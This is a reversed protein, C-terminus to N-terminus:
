QYRYRKNWHRRRITAGGWNASTFTLTTPSVTAAGNDSSSITIVTTAAPQASLRVGFSTNSGENVTASNVDSVIALTDNDIIQAAVQLTAFGASAVSLTVSENTVNVDNTGSVTVTQAANWNDPTFTLSAPSVTAANTDPSSVNVTVAAAPQASLTVQFPASSGETINITNVNTHLLLTDNDTVHITLTLTPLGSSAITVTTEENEANNDETGTLTITQTTEWNDPTFILSPLNVTAVEINNSTANMTVTSAPQVNLRVAFSATSGEVLNLDATSSSVIVVPTATEVVAPSSSSKACNQMFFLLPPIAIVSLILAAINKKTTNM